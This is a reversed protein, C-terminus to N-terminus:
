PSLKNFTSIIRSRSVHNTQRAFKNGSSTMMDGIPSGGGASRGVLLEKFVQQALRHLLYTILEFYSNRANLLGEGRM